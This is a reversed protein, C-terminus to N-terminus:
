LTVGPPASFGGACHLDRESGIDTLNVVAHFRIPRLKAMTKALWQGHSKSDLAGGSFRPVDVRRVVRVRCIGLTV